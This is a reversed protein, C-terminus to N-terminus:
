FPFTNLLGVRHHQSLWHSPTLVGRGGADSVPSSCGRPGLYIRYGSVVLHCHANRGSALTLLPYVSLLPSLSVLLSLTFSLSLLLSWCLLRVNVEGTNM